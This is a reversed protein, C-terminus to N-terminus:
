SDLDDYTPIIDDQQLLIKKGRQLQIVLIRRVWENVWEVDTYKPDGNEDVEDNSHIALFEDKYGALKNLAESTLLAM